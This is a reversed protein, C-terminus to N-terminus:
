SRARSTAEWMRGESPPQELEHSDPHIWGKGLASAAPQVYRSGTGSNDTVCLGTLAPDLHPLVMVLKLLHGLLQSLMEYGLSKQVLRLSALPAWASDSRSTCLVRQFGGSCRSFRWHRCM